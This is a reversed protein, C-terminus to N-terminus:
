AAGCERTVMDALLKLAVDVVDAKLVYVESCGQGEPWGDFKVYRPDKAIDVVNLQRPM